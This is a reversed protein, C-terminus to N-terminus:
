AGLVDDIAISTILEDLLSSVSDLEMVYDTINYEGDLYPFYDESEVEIDLNSANVRVIAKTASLMAGSNVLGLATIRNKLEVTILNALDSKLKNVM